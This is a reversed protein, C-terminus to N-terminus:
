SSATTSASASRRAHHNPSVPRPLLSAFHRLPRPLDALVQDYTRNEKIIYLVHEIPPYPSSPRRRSTWNNARAVRETFEELDRGRGGANPLITVTGSLQGLTYTTPRSLHTGTGPHPYGPNPSTGHGKGNVVWLTDGALALAPSVDSRYVGALSITAM